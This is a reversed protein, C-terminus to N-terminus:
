ALFKKPTSTIRQRDAATDFYFPDIAIGIGIAVGLVSAPTMNKQCLLSFGM